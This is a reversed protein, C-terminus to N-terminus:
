FHRYFRIGHKRTSVKWGSKELWFFRKVKWRTSIWGPNHRQCFKGRTSYISHALLPLTEIPVLFDSRLRRTRKLISKWSLNLIMITHKEICCEIFRFALLAFMSSLLFISNADTINNEECIINQERWGHSWLTDSTTQTASTVSQFNEIDNFEIDSPRMFILFLRYWCITKIYVSGKEKYM